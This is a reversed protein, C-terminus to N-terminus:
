TFNLTSQRDRIYIQIYIKEIQFSLQEVTMLELLSKQDYLDVNPHLFIQRARGISSNPDHRISM